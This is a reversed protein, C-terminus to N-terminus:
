CTLNRGISEKENHYTGKRGAASPAQLIRGIYRQPGFDDDYTVIRPGHFYGDFSMALASHADGPTKSTGFRGIERGRSWFFLKM